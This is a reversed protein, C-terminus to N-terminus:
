KRESRKPSPPTRSRVVPMENGADFQESAIQEIEARHKRFTGAIDEPDTGDAVACRAFRVM